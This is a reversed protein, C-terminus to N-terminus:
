NCRTGKEDGVKTCICSMQLMICIFSVPMHEAYLYAGLHRVSVYSIFSKNRFSHSQFALHFRPVSLEKLADVKEHLSKISFSLKRVVSFCPPTWERLVLYLRGPFDLLSSPM